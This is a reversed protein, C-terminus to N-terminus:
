ANLDRAANLADIDKDPEIINRWLREHSSEPVPLESKGLAVDVHSLGLVSIRSLGSWPDDGTEPSVVYKRCVSRNLELQRPTVQDQVEETLFVVYADVVRHRERERHMVVGDVWAEVRLWSGDIESAEIAVAVLVAYEAIWIHIDGVPPKLTQLEEHSMPVFLVSAALEDLRAIAAAFRTM